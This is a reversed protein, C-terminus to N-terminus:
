PYSVKLKAAGVLNGTDEGFVAEGVWCIRQTPKMTPEGEPCLGVEFSTEFRGKADTTVEKENESLCPFSPAMWFIKGCELLQIATNAPFHKGKLMTTTNVMLKHPMAKVKPSGEGMAYAPAAALLTALVAGLLLGHRTSRSVFM